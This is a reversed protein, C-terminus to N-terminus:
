ATPRYVAIRDPRFLGARRLATTMGGSALGVITDLFENSRRPISGLDARGPPNARRGPATFDAYEQRM